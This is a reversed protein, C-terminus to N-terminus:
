YQNRIFTTRLEEEVRQVFEPKLIKISRKKENEDLEYEYYSKTEKTTSIIVSNGNGLSVTESALSVNAYTESDIQLTTSFAEGSPSSTRTITKYYSHINSQSWSLGTEGISTNANAIYKSEIFQIISRQDLPWGFRPDIINNMELIVWHKEPSKYLKSALIEPTDGERIDYKYYVATNNKFDDEFKYRSTINTVNDVGTTELSQKYFVKPFYNFYKAM